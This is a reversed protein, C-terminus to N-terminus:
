GFASCFLLNTEVWAVVVGVSARREWMACEDAHLLESDEMERFFGAFSLLSLLQLPIGFSTVDVHLMMFGCLESVDM